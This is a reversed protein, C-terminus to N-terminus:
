AAGAGFPVTVAFRESEEITIPTGLLLRCREDLNKLGVGTTSTPNKPRNDHHVVAHASEIDVSVVFANDDDFRNHKVANEVLTQLACPPVHATSEGQVKIQLAGGFRLDLLTAYARVHAVEDSVPVLPRDKTQLLYRYTDALAECFESANPSAEEILASLTNLSNFLFHPDVQQRLTELQATAHMRHLREVRVLDSERAQILLVTEYAHTVFLVCIVNVLSVTTVAATDFPLEAVVYWLSIAGATLPVTCVTCAFVLVVLKVIPQALWSVRSQQRFLLWRNGQWIAAALLVFYITGVWYFSDSPGLDGFLGVARPIILGFTPIGVLRVWGDRVHIQEASPTATSM